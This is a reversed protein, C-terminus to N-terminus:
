QQSDIRSLNTRRMGCSERCTGQHVAIQRFMKIIDTSFLIRHTRTWLLIESIDIQLKSGAHFINNLSYGNTTRSSGNFVVRLKITRSHERLM